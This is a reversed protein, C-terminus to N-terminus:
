HIDQKRLAELVELSVKLKDTDLIDKEVLITGLARRVGSEAEVVQQDLAAVVQAQT